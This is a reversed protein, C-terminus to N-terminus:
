ASRSSFTNELRYRYAIDELSNRFADRSEFGEIRHIVQGNEIYLLTPLTTLQYQNALKFNEDANVDFLRVPVPWKAQYSNLIPSILRCIGCWPAQFHVFVPVSSTLVEQQFNDDTVTMMMM